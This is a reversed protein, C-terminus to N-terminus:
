MVEGEDVDDEYGGSLIVSFAGSTKSGSIGAYVNTHIKAKAM